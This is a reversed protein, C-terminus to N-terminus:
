GLAIKLSIPQLNGKVTDPVIKHFLEILYDEFNQNFFCDIFHLPKDSASWFSHVVQRQRFNGVELKFVM